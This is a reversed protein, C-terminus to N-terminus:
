KIKDVLFPALFQLVALVGAGFAMKKELDSIKDNLKETTDGIKKDLNLGLADVKENLHPLHNDVIKDMVTSLGEVRSELSSVREFLKIKQVNDLREM